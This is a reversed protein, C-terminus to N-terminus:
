VVVFATMTEAVVIVVVVGSNVGVEVDVITVSTEMSM